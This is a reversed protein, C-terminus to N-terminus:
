FGTQCHPAPHVVFLADARRLTEPNRAELRRGAALTTPAVGGLLLAGLGAGTTTLDPRTRATSVGSAGIRWRRGDVEVVVDDDTGYARQEFCRRVDRVNCWVGDNLDTTRLARQNTLMFPLPDDVPIKRTQIQGYLDSALITQWLARHAEPTVAALTWLTMQHAPHGDNWQPVPQWGAYGDPHLLHTAAGGMDAFLVPWWSPARSIEGARTLRYREWVAAIEDVSENPDVMRVDGTSVALEPTLSVLRRDITTVRTRTAIGYGFREYIGGESATLAALPEDREDIDEHVADMLRRLLGQRRHTVAVAVWTVGGTPVARRGPLTMEFGFSGAAGVVAGRDAAIRFRDLEVTARVRAIEDETFAGGFARGDAHAVRPWDEEDPIRLEIV